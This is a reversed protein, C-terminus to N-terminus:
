NSHGPVLRPSLLHHGSLIWIPLFCINFLGLHNTTEHCKATCYCSRKAVAPTWCVCHLSYRGPRVICHDACREMPISVWGTSSGAFLLCYNPYPHHPWISGARQNQGQSSAVLSPEERPGAQAHLLVCCCRRCGRLPPQYLLLSALHRPRRQLTLFYTRSQLPLWRLITEGTFAGGM